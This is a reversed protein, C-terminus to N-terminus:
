LGTAECEHTQIDGKNIREEHWTEMRMQYFEESVQFNERLDADSWYRRLLLEVQKAPMLLEFAFDWAQREWQQALVRDRQVHHFPQNGSHLFYHGLAHALLENVRRPDRISSQIGIYNEVIMEQLRGAFAVRVLHIKEANMIREIDGPRKLRYRRRIAQARRQATNMTDRQVADAYSDRHAANGGRLITSTIEVTHM